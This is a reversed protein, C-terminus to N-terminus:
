RLARRLADALVRDLRDIETALTRAADDAPPLTWGRRQFAKLRDIRLALVNLRSDLSLSGEQRERDVFGDWVDLALLTAEKDKGAGCAKRAEAARPTAKSLEERLREREPGSRKELAEKRERVEGDVLKIWRDCEKEAAKGVGPFLVASALAAVLSMRRGIM